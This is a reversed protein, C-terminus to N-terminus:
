KEYGSKLAKIESFLVSQIRGSKLKENQHWEGDKLEVGKIGLKKMENEDYYFGLIPEEVILGSDAHRLRLGTLVEKDMFSPDLDIAEFFLRDKSLLLKREFLAQDIFVGLENEATVNKEKAYKYMIDLYTDKDKLFSGLYRGTWFLRSKSNLIKKSGALFVYDACPGVCYQDVEVEIQHDHIWKALLLSSYSDGGLSNIVIRTPKIEAQQYADNIKKLQVKDIKGNIFLQSNVSKKESDNAFVSGSFLIIFVYLYFM